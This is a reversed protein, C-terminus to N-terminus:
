GKLNNRIMMLIRGLHNEGRGNCVGWFHDHWTNGEILEVNGTALLKAKLEPHQTFKQTVLYTMIEIRKQDWGDILKVRRGARKAQGPTMHVFQEMDEINRCKAAQFANEVTPFTYDCFTIPVAYFNSLFAYEKDFRNIQNM